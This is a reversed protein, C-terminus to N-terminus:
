CNPFFFFQLLLLFNPSEPWFKKLDKHDNM